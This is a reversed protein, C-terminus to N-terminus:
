DAGLMNIRPLLSRPLGQSQAVLHVKLLDKSGQRCPIGYIDIKMRVKSTCGLGAPTLPIPSGPCASCCPLWMIVSGMPGRWHGRTVLCSLGELHVAGLSSLHSFLHCHRDRLCRGRSEKKGKSERGQSSERDEMPRQSSKLECGAQYHSIIISDPKPNDGLIQPLAALANVLAASKARRRAM